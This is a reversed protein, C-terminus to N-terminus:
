DSNKIKLSPLPFHPPLNLEEEMQLAKLSSKKLIINFVDSRFDEPMKKEKWQRLVERAKRPELGLLIGGEFSLKAIEPSYTIEYSFDVSVIEDKTKLLTSKVEKIESVDIKTNLKLDKLANSTKEVNIKNFSFGMLKM